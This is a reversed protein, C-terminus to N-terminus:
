TAGVNCCGGGVEEGSPGEDKEVQAKLNYKALKMIRMMLKDNKILFLHCEDITIHFFALMDFLQM